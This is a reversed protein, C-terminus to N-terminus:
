SVFSITARSISKESVPGQFSFNTALMATERRWLSSLLLFMIPIHLQLPSGNWQALNVMICKCKRNLQQLPTVHKKFEPPSSIAPLSKKLHFISHNWFFFYISDFIIFLLIISLTTSNFDLLWRASSDTLLFFNFTTTMGNENLWLHSVHLWCSPQM